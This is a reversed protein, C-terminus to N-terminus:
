VTGLDPPRRWCDETLWATFLPRSLGPRELWFLFPRDIVHPRRRATMGLRMTVSTASRARFGMENMRLTTAQRAQALRVPQGRADASGLGVLWLLDADTALDVMPFVLGDFEDVPRKQDALRPGVAGLDKAELLTEHMTMWVADGARTQMRAIPHPHSDARFFEVARADTRVAPVDHGDPTRLSSAKGRHRWRAVLDMVSASGFDYPEFPDFRAGFGRRELFVNLEDAKRSALAEIEPVRIVEDRASAFVDALFRAQVDSVARWDARCELVDDAAILAAVIGYDVLSCSM